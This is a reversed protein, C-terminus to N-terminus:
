GQRQGATGQQCLTQNRSDRTLGYRTASIGAQAGRGPLPHDGLDGIGSAAAAEVHLRRRPDGAHICMTRTNVSEAPTQETRRPQAHRRMVLGSSRQTASARRSILWDIWHRSHCLRTCARATATAQKLIVPRHRVPCLRYELAPQNRADATPMVVPPCTRALRRKNWWRLTSSSDHISTLHM